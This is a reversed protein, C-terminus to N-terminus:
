LNMLAIITKADIIQGAELKLLAEERTLRVTSLIEDDDLKQDTRTLSSAFFLHMKEDLFGPSVYFECVKKLEGAVLGTEEQIERLACETPTEGADVTGAPVEYIHDAVPIRFQRVLTIDGNEHIPLVVASGSHRILEREYSLNGHEIRAKTLRFVRGQYLEEESLVEPRDENM